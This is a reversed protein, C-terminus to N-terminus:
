VHARGIELRGNDLDMSVDPTLTGFIRIANRLCDSTHAQGIPRPAATTPQTTEELRGDDLDMAADLSSAGFIRLANTGPVTLSGLRVTNHAPCIPRNATAPPVPIAKATPPTQGVPPPNYPHWSRAHARPPRQAAAAFPARLSAFTPFMRRSTLPRYTGGENSPGQLADRRALPTGASAENLDHDAGDMEDDSVMAANDDASFPAELDEEPVSELSPADQAEPLDVPKLCERCRPRRECPMRLLPEVPPQCGCPHLEWLM